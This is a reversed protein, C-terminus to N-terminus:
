KFLTLDDGWRLGLVKRSLTVDCSNKWIEEKGSPELMSDVIGIFRNGATSDQGPAEAVFLDDILNM